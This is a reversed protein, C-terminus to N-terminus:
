VSPTAPERKPIKYRKGSQNRAQGVGVSLGGEPEHRLATRRGPVQLVVVMLSIYPYFGLRNIVQM